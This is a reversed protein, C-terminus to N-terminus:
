TRTPYVGAYCISYTLGNPAVGRLDPIGFTTVGDGGYTTGFLTFLPGYTAIPLLQGEALLGNTVSGANLIVEGVTCTAGIGPAPVNSTYGFRPDPGAPGQPGV